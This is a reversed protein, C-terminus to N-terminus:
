EALKKDAKYTKAEKEMKQIESQMDMLAKLEPDQMLATPDVSQGSMIMAILKDKVSSGKEIMAQYQLILDKMKQAYAKYDEVDKLAEIKDYEEMAALLFGKLQDGLESLKKEFEQVKEPTADKLETLASQQVQQLEGFTKAAQSYKEDGANMHEKAQKKDASEGCGALALSVLVALALFLAVSSTLWRRM